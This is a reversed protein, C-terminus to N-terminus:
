RASGSSASGTSKCAASTSESKGASSKAIKAPAKAKRAPAPAAKKGAKAGSGGRKVSKPPLLLPESRVMEAGGSADNPLALPLGARAEDDEAGAEHARAKKAAPEEEEDSSDILIGTDDPLAVHTARTSAEPVGGLIDIHEDEDRAM